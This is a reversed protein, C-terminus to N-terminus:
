YPTKDPDQRTDFVSLIVIDPETILYFLKFEKVVLFRINESSITAKGIYPTQEFNDTADFFAEELKIPYADSGTREIWYSNIDRINQKARDSWIIQWAM